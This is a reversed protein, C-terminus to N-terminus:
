AKFSGLKPRCKRSIFDIFSYLSSVGGYTVDDYSVDGDTIGSRKIAGYTEDGFSDCVVTNWWATSQNPM